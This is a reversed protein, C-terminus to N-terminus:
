KKGAHSANYRKVLEDTVDTVSADTYVIGGENKELILTYGKDRGIQAAVTQMKEVLDNMIQMYTAQLEQEATMAEQQYQARAGEFAAMKDRRASESLIAAQNQLESQMQMLNQQMKEINRTKEARIGDFRAMATKGEEIQQMAAQFDVVALRFEAAMARVPLACAVLLALTLLLRLFPARSAHM